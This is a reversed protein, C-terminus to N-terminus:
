FFLIKTAWYNLNFLFNKGRHMKIHNNLQATTAFRKNCSKEEDHVKMHATM